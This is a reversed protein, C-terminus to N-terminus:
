LSRYDYPRKLNTRNLCLRGGIKIEEWGLYGIKANNGEITQLIERLLLTQILHVLKIFHFYLQRSGFDGSCLFSDFIISSRSHDNQKSGIAISQQPAAMLYLQDVIVEVGTDLFSRKAADYIEEDSLPHKVISDM